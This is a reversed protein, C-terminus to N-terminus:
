SGADQQPHQIDYYDSECTDPQYPGAEPGAVLRSDSVLYIAPSSPCRAHTLGPLILGGEWDCWWSSWETFESPYPPLPAAEPEYSERQYDCADAPNGHIISTDPVSVWGIIPVFAPLCEGDVYVQDAPLNNRDCDECQERCKELDMNATNLRETATELDQETTALDAPSPDPDLGLNRLGDRAEEIDDVAAQQAGQAQELEDQLEELRMKSGSYSDENTDLWDGLSNAMHALMVNAITFSGTDLIEIYTGYPGIRRTLANYWASMTPSQLAPASYSSIDRIPSNFPNFVPDNLKTQAERIDQLYSTAEEYDQVLKQHPEALRQIVDVESLAIDLAESADLYQRQLDRTQNLREVDATAMQVAEEEDTCDCAEVATSPSSLGFVVLAVALAPLVLHRWLKVGANSHGSDQLLFAM